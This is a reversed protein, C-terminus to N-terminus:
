NVTITASQTDNLVVTTDALSFKGDLRIDRSSSGVLIKYGGKEAVWGKKDPSYYAFASPDLKISIKQKEGPQLLVKKFGKLEKLPRSVSPDLPQVYVQVVEAGALKGTNALELEVTLPNEPDGGPALNLKSYKFQTYSLGYGFPFLPEIKKADFWRYGVLLGEAYTVVGNTGPYANLAHAPSDALRKPFTCPLKGSPNVDGFLVRALANGGELGGYWAYLLAPTRSLWSGMEVAGGGVFVVVTKPNAAVIKELLLDQGSPLKLDRRDSGETDYGGTHSLGGVYIVVDASKAAAVAEDILNTNAAVPAVVVDGRDRRGRGAPTIYGPAYIIKVSTGLRNSIGELATIEYPAKINAAGGGSAFKAVANAGIIAVTKLKAPNLPLFKENKLLVMSEEAVRRAIAQHEKTSLVGKNELNAPPTAPDHILDLKFMVYLHRRVKDDLVSVPFKGSNLGALFPSALYATDYPPSTRTGMEMDMGNMAALDTSHVGSWDSMVLGKFGWENKLIQNLLYDSECCHQGRFLNYAGMVSLVGAEQVSAKFAPLYIERLTREDMEVDISSRQNEQNNAAFHKACSAVGQAQEGEIYNVAIPSTLYPDEGMYEFNRGCLPTRQINLSPGLMIDKGRQKAEQGIVTGYANALETNFTAALGLTAPMATAFDDAHNLNKFGAGVEERVGMPGDDTWLEPIGLRPVGATTFTSNAYCLSNKEELTLRPLLDAVRAEVPKTADLYLPYEQAFVPAVTATLVAAMLFTQARHNIMLTPKMIKNEAQLLVQALRPQKDALAIAMSQSIERGQALLIRARSVRNRNFSPATTDCDRAHAM